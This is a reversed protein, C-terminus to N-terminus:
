FILPSRSVCTVNVETIWMHTFVYLVLLICLHMSVRACFVCVLTVGYWGCLYFNILLYFLILLFFKLYEKCFHIDFRKGVSEYFPIAM